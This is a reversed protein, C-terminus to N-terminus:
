AISNVPVKIEMTGSATMKTTNPLCIMPPMMSPATFPQAAPQFPAAAPRAQWLTAPMFIRIEASMSPAVPTVQGASQSGPVSCHCRQRAINVESTLPATAPKKSPPASVTTTLSACAVM